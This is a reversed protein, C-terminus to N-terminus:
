AAVRQRRVACRGALTAFIGRAYKDGAADADTALLVRAGNPIREALEASWSGAWVGLFAPRETLPYALSAALFDPEGECIGVRMRPPGEGRLLALGDLDALTLGAASFGRPAVRKPVESGPRWARMSRLAGRADYAPLILRHGSTSWPRGHAAWPPCAAGKPLVRALGHTQVDRADLGRGRLYDSIERDTELRACADWFALVDAAPPYSPPPAPPAPAPPPSRRPPISRPEDTWTVGALDAALRLLEPFPREGHVAAILDFVSGSLDCGFCRVQLTGDKGRRLSLSAGGHSPCAWKAREERSRELGLLDAVRLPDSLAPRERLERANVEAGSGHLPSRLHRM